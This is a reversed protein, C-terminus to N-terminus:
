LTSGYKAILGIQGAHYGMHHQMLSLGERPSLPGVPTETKIDWKDEPLAKVAEMLYSFAEDAFKITAALDTVQGQDTVPGLTFFESLGEYRKGTFMGSFAYEAEAIHRILFGISNSGPAVKWTVQEATLNDLIPRYRLARTNEIQSIQASTAATTM